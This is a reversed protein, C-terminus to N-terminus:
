LRWFGNMVITPQVNESNGTGSDAINVSIGTLDLSTGSSHSISSSGTHGTYSTGYSFPSTNGSNWHRHGPDTVSATHTHQSMFESGGVAGLTSGDVGSGATTLRNAASGGMNDAGAVTRGKLDPITLTKNAAFDAAASAGRGGSVTAQADALSNWLATYLNETDSNARNTAGSSANGITGGDSIIWGAKSPLISWTFDGADATGNNIKEALESGLQEVLIGSTNGSSYWSAGDCHVTASGGKSIVISSVGDITESGDADVTINGSSQNIITNIYGENALSASPLSITLSSTCIYVYKNSASSLSTNASITQLTAAYGAESGIIDDTTWITVDASDKLIFKYGGAGLWVDAIGSADLIVPNPNATTGASTTFTEKLTSTGAQLTYLKGGGLPNGNSDLGRFKGQPAIKAM